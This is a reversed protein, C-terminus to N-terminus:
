QVPWEGGDCSFVVAQLPCSEGRMREGTENISDAATATAIIWYPWVLM